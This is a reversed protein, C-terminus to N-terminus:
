HLAGHGDARSRGLGGPLLALAAFPRRSLPDVAPRDGGLHGGVWFCPLVNSPAGAVTQELAPEGQWCALDAGLHQAWAQVVTQVAPQRSGHVLLVSRRDGQPFRPRLRDTLDPLAGVHPFLCLHRYRSQVEGVAAPLDVQVHNGPLLFLPLVGIGTGEPYAAAFAMLREALPTATGELFGGAVVLGPCQARGAALTATLVEQARRDRSGHMVWFWAGIPPAPSRVLNVGQGGSRADRDGM